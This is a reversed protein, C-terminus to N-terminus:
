NRENLRHLYLNIKYNFFKRGKDKRTHNEAKETNKILNEFCSEIIDIELAKNELNSM